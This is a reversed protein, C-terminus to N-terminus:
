TAKACWAPSPAKSCPGRVERSRGGSKGGAGGGRGRAIISPTSPPAARAFPACVLALQIYTRALNFNLADGVGM